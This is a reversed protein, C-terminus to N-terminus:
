NYTLTIAGYGDARAERNQHVYICKYGKTDIVGTDGANFDKSYVQTYGYRQTIDTNYGFSKFDSDSPYKTILGIIYHGEGNMRYKISECDFTPLLVYAHSWGYSGLTAYISLGKVTNFPFVTDAGGPTKYGTIKGNSDYTFTPQNALKNNLQNLAKASAAINSSTSVLSDTIGNIAGMKTEATSGDNFEVDSAKTWFSIRQWLKQAEDVLKRFKRGTVITENVTAM